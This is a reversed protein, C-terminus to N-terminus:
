GGTYAGLLGLSESGAPSKRRWVCARGKWAPSSGQTFRGSLRWEAPGARYFSEASGYEKLFIPFGAVPLALTKQLWIWFAAAQEM